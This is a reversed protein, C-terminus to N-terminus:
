SYGRRRSHIADLHMLLGRERRIPAAWMRSAQIVDPFCCEGEAKAQKQLNETSKQESEHQRYCKSCMNLTMPNGYFGCGKACLVPAQPQRVTNNSDM